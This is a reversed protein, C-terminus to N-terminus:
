KKQDPFFWVALIATLLLIVIWIWERRSFGRQVYKDGEKRTLLLPWIFLYNWFSRTIERKVAINKYILWIIFVSPLLMALFLWHMEIFTFLEDM